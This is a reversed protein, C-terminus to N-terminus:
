RRGAMRRVYGLHVTCKFKFERDTKSGFGIEFGPGKPEFDNFMKNSEIFYHFLIFDLITITLPIKNHLSLKKLM